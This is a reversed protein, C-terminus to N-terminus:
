PFRGRADAELSLNRRHLRFHQLIRLAQDSPGLDSRLTMSAVSVGTIMIDLDGDEPCRPLKRDSSELDIVLGLVVAELFRTRFIGRGRWEIAGQISPHGRAVLRGGSRAVCIRDDGVLRSFYGFSEAMSTLALALLSKGAGSVGRILIGTEGVVVASAHIYGAPRTSAPDLRPSDTM